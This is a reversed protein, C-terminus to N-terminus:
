GFAVAIQARQILGGIRYLPDGVDSGFVVLPTLATYWAYTRWGSEKCLVLANSIYSLILAFFVALFLMNRIQGSATESAGKPDTPYLGSAYTGVGVVVLLLTGVRSGRRLSRYLGVAFAIISLGFVFFNTTQLWGHQGLALEGVTQTRLDYGPALLGAL